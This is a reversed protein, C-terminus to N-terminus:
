VHPPNEIVKKLQTQLQKAPLGFAFLALWLGQPTILYISSSHQMAADQSSSDREAFIGFQQKLNNLQQPEASFGLFDKNFSAAYHQVDTQTDHEVDLSIFVVQLEPYNAHLAPYIRNLLSLNAPCVDSCHTYGFLLLTWHKSFLTSTTKGADFQIARAQPFVTVGEPAQPNKSFYVAALLIMLGLCLLLPIKFKLPM